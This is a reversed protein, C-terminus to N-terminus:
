FCKYYIKFIKKKELNCKQHINHFVQLFFIWWIKAAAIFAPM